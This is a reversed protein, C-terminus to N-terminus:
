PLRFRLYDAESANPTLVTAGAYRSVDRSKPDVVVPLGLERAQEIVQIILAPELVGKAYDSLIVASLKPAADRFHEFIKAATAADLRLKSEVDLRLIQQSGSVYRTKVTTPHGQLQVFRAEVGDRAVNELAVGAAEDKGLVGALIAQGGLATINRAVNGAGGLM